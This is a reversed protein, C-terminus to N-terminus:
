APQEHSLEIDSEIEDEIAICNTSLQTSLQASTWRAQGDERVISSNGSIFTVNEDDSQPNAVPERSGTERPHAKRNSLSHWVCIYSGLVCVCVVM